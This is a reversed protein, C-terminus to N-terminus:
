HQLYEEFKFTRDNVSKVFDKISNNLLDIKFPDHKLGFVKGKSDIAIYNSDELDKIQYYTKGDIEFESLNNLELEDSHLDKVLKEIKCDAAFKSKAKLMKSTDFQYSKFEKVNKSIDFGIWLGDYVTLDLQHRQNEALVEISKIEFNKGKVMSKDSQNPDFGIFYNNGKNFNYRRYLGKQLGEQLFQFESPLQSFLTQFFQKRENDITWSTKKFLGFM